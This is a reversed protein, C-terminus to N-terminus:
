PAFSVPCPINILRLIYSPGWRNLYHYKGILYDACDCILFFINNSWRKKCISPRQYAVTVNSTVDSLVPLLCHSLALSFRFVFSNTATKVYKRSFLLEFRAMLITFSFSDFIKLDM